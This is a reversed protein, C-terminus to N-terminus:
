RCERRWGGWARHKYAVFAPKRQELENSHQQVLVGDDRLEALDVVGAPNARERSIREKDDELMQDFACMPALVDRQFARAGMCKADARCAQERAVKAAVDADFASRDAVPIGLDTELAAIRAERSGVTGMYGALQDDGLQEFGARREQDLRELLAIAEAKEQRVVTARQAAALSAQVRARAEQVTDGRAVGSICFCAALVAVKAIAAIM